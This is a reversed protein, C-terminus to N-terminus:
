RQGKRNLGLMAQHADRYFEEVGPDRDRTHRVARVRCVTLMLVRQPEKLLLHGALDLCVQMARSGWAEWRFVDAWEPKQERRVAYSVPGGWLRSLADLPERRTMNVKVHPRGKGDIGFYGEGDLLGAAYAVSPPPLETIPVPM